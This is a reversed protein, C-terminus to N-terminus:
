NPGWGRLRHQTWAFFGGFLGVQLVEEAHAVRNRSSIHRQLTLNVRYIADVLYRPCEPPINLQTIGDIEVPEVIREVRTM